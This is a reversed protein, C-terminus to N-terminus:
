LHLHYINIYGMCSQISSVAFLIQQVHTYNVLLMDSLFFLQFCFTQSWM